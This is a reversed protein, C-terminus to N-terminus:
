VADMRELCLFGAPKLTDKRVYGQRTNNPCLMSSGPRCPWIRAECPLLCGAGIM